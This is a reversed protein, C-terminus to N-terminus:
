SIGLEALIEATSAGKEEPRTPAALNSRSFRPGPSPQAYGATDTIAARAKIHPHSAADSLPLVPAFCTNTGELLNRWDALSKSKFVEEFTATLTPWNAPDLRDPLDDSKIELKQLLEDYFKQELAGISLYKGDQTEYTRYFPAGGDLHNSGREEQWRGAAGLTFYLSMQYLVGDLMAADIVQGQGSKQAELLGALMGCALYLAGGGYDGVLNLPPLPPGDKPGIAHLAGSLAIYNIDHGATQALPGDQGWGTVRGYVLKPNCALCDNPGLGLRETVGPRFGEILGDSTEALKLLIEISRADKLDLEISRKGRREITDTPKAGIEAEGSREVLIVEAGLDALLMGCMPAPGLGGLEIIRYEALPGM